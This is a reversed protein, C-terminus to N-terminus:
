LVNVCIATANDQGGRARARDLLATVTASVDCGQNSLIDTLEDNTVQGHLGDSCILLTDGSRLRRLSPQDDADAIWKPDVSFGTGRGGLCTTLVSRLPHSHIDDLSIEGADALLQAAAHDKTVYMQHGSTYHYLRCDGCYLFLIERMSVLAAMLATGAGALLPNTAGATRLLDDTKYFRELLVEYRDEAEDSISLSALQGFCQVATEAAYEGGQAGGMGDAVVALVAPISALPTLVFRDQNQERVAGVDSDGACLMGPTKLEIM